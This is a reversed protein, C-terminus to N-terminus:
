GAPPPQPVRGLRPPQGQPLRRQRGDILEAYFNADDTSLSVELHLDVAGALVQDSRLPDTTFAVSGGPADPEVPESFTARGPKAPAHNLSGDTRLALEGQRGHENDQMPEWSSFEHWGTGVGVPGEYSTVRASPLPAGPVQAVWHDFWALLAGPKVTETSNCFIALQPVGCAPWGIVEAHHWPGFVAWSHDALAQQNRVMGARFFADDWGGFALVPVKIQDYKDSVSVQKWGEQRLPHVLQSAYEAVPDIRGGSLLAGTPPWNNLPGGPTSYIGGPYIVDSYLDAQSQQPAIALLHPNQLSAVRYSTMGGYSFGTQGIRGNSWPQAAMWEILDYNDQNEIASNTGQWTGGSRGTGRVNCVIAGYGRSAFYQAETNYLPRIAIYPTFEVVLGPFTGPATQGTPTGPLNLDCDLRTGDRMPVQVASQLPV